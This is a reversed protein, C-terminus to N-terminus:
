NQVFRLALPGHLRLARGACPNDSRANKIQLTVTRHLQDCRVAAIDRGVAGGFFLPSKKKENDPEVPEALTVPVNDISPFTDLM